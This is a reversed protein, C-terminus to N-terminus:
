TTAVSQPSIFNYCFTYAYAMNTVNPGCVPSGTINYCNYYAKAMDIIDDGCVTNELNSCKSCLGRISLVGDPITINKLNEMNSFMGCFDVTSLRINNPIEVDTVQNYKKFDIM